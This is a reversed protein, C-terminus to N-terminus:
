VDVFNSALSNQWSALQNSSLVRPFKHSGGFKGQEQMWQYFSDNPLIEVSFGKLAAGRETRYDDNLEKLIEDLRKEVRNKDLAKDTGIWWRHAFNNEDTIGAVTFERIDAQFEEGLRTIAVNMNEVSLHEGCLSLFQRIRGTIVLEQNAVDTFRVTDGILYRWAGACTSIVLAYEVGQEVQSLNISQADPKVHGDETFNQRNFPIFEYYVGNELILSMSGTGNVREYAMFGESALYTELYYMESGFLKKFSERYPAFSVGGHVYFKLNPWIDHINSVGYHKIMKEFLMQVWAPVGAVIGIDWKHAAETILDLKKNWDREKSIQHGPKYFRHMWIPLKGTLIGSLDGMFANEVRELHTCGGLMLMGKEYFNKPLDHDQMTCMQRFSAKRISMLMDRTIPIKKSPSGTTGSSLAFNKVEGPWCVDREGAVARNWYKTAISDYDFYPVATAFKALLDDSKLLSNFGFDRGFDTNAATKLLKRLTKEQVKHVDNRSRSLKRNLKIAGSFINSVIAM